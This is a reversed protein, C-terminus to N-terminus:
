QTLLKALDKALDFAKRGDEAPQPYIEESEKEYAFLVILVKKM